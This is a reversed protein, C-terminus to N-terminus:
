GTAELDVNVTDSDVITATANAVDGDNYAVTCNFTTGVDTSSPDECTATATFDPNAGEAAAVAAEVAAASFDTTTAGCAGAFVMLLALVGTIRTMGM